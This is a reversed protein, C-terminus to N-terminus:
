ENPTKMGLAACVLRGAGRLYLRGNSLVPAAWVPKKLLGSDSGLNDCEAVLKFESPNAEILWMHGFENVVLLMGDVSLISHRALGGKAWRVKGTKWDVCRLEASGNSEGSCGYLYGDVLVPTMWHSALIRERTKAQDSWLVRPKEALSLKLKCGGVEYSETIFVEDGLVVPSAANVSELKRARWPFEFLRDGKEADVGLLGSRAFALAVRRGGFQAVRISSYSALDDGVQYIM